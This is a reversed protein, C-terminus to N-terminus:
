GSLTPVVGSRIIKEDKTLLKASWLRATSVIIRDAPDRHFEPPLGATDAAVAPTIPCLHVLPPAVARELWERLPLSITLRGYSVLTAIEWLSVDSVLFPEEPPVASLLRRQATGLLRPNELWYVLIHTDLLYKLEANSGSGV